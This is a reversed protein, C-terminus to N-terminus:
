VRVLAVSGARRSSIGALLAEVDPYRRRPSRASDFETTIPGVTRRRINRGTEVPAELPGELASLALHCVAGLIQPPVGELLRGERDRAGSRPWALGQAPSLLRGPWSGSWRSELYTTARVLAREKDASNAATWLSTALGQLGIYAEAEAVSAYANAGEVGSGNEPVFAM